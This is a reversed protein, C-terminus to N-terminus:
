EDRFGRSKAGKTTLFASQLKGRLEFVLREDIWISIFKDAAPVISFTEGVINEVVSFEELSASIFFDALKIRRNVAFGNDRPKPRSSDSTRLRSAPTTQRKNMRELERSLLINEGFGNDVAIFNVLVCRSPLLPAFFSTFM